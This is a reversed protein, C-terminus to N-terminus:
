LSQKSYKTGNDLTATLTYDACKGASCNAPSPQYSYVKTQPASVLKPQPGDPDRLVERDLNPMNVKRWAADNLNALTPYYGKENYYTEISIQLASIDSKRETDKASGATSAASDSDLGLGNLLEIITKANAPKEVKVENGSPTVSMKFNGKETSEGSNEFNADLSFV